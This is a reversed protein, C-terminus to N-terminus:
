RLQLFRTQCPKCWDIVEFGEAGEVVYPGNVALRYNASYNMIFM